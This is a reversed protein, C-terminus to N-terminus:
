GGASSLRQVNSRAPARKRLVHAPLPAYVEAEFPLSFREAALYLIETILVDYPMGESAAMICLDSILPNLGPLTNIELLQPEGDADLRMDVRSVDCADIAEAAKRALDVLRDRLAEPIRAPCVYGPAGPVGIDFSKADHGYVGPSIGSLSDIELVPFFHYGDTNYLRPRRRRAPFGPNGLFGVTFERGPLATEVLAPERYSRLVWAVRERLEQDNHVVSGMDVGMGTGERAPKVFLPFALAPDLADNESRFEQFAPTRLGVSKWIRKIQTKDLSLGNALVRSATYPIGLLEFLAPAQSERADGGIGEAINFCIHPRLNLLAEPLTHDASCIHVWHGDREIAQALAELTERRDFEAGADPPEEPDAQYEDKLNAVLAVRWPAHRRHRSPPRGRSQIPQYYRM